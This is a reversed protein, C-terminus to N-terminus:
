NQQHKLFIELRMIVSIAKDYDNNDIYRKLEEYKQGLNTM